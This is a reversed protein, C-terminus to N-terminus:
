HELLVVDKSTSFKKKLAILLCCVVSEDTSLQLDVLAHLWLIGWNIITARM